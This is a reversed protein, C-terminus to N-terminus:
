NYSLTSIIHQVEGGGLCERGSYFVCMQGDAVARFPLMPKVSLFKQNIRKVRCPVPPHTRQIRCELTVENRDGEISREVTLM